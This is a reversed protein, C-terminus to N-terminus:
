TVGSVAIRVINGVEVSLVWVEETHEEIHSDGGPTENDADILMLM